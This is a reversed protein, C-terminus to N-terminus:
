VELYWFYGTAMTHLRVGLIKRAEKLETKTFGMKRAEGRIEDIPIDGKGLLENKLWDVCDRNM